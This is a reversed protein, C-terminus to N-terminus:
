DESPIIEYGEPITGKVLFDEWVKLTERSIRGGPEGEGYDENTLKLDTLADITDYVPDHTQLPRGELDYDKNFRRRVKKEVPALRKLRKIEKGEPTVITEMVVPNDRRVKENIGPTYETTFITNSGGADIGGEDYRSFKAAPADLVGTMRYDERLDPTGQEYIISDTVVNSPTGEIFETRDSPPMPRSYFENNPKPQNTVGEYLIDPYTINHTRYMDKSNWPVRREFEPLDELDSITSSGYNFINNNYIRGEGMEISNTNLFHNNVIYYGIVALGTGFLLLEPLTTESESSVFNYEISGNGNDTSKNGM